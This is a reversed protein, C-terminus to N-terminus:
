ENFAHLEDRVGFISLSTDGGKDTKLRQLPITSGKPPQVLGLSDAIRSKPTTVPQPRATRASRQFIFIDNHFCSIHKHTMSLRDILATLCLSILQSM